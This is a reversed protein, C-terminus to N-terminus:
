ASCVNISVGTTTSAPKCTTGPFWSCDANTSCGPFCVNSGGSNKVCWNDQGYKNQTGYDGDCDSSYSCYRTCWGTTGGACNGSECSANSACADGIGGSPCYSKSACVGYTQGKLPACCGSECENDSTCNAHCANDDSVCTQGLPAVSPSQCCQSTATCPGGPLIGCGGGTDSSTGSDPPATPDVCTGSKCVRSGKCDSDSSCGTTGADSGLDSSKSGASSCATAAVFVWCAGMFTKKM